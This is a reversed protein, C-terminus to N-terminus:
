YRTFTKGSITKKSVKSIDKEPHARNLVTLLNDVRQRMRSHLYSKTCKIHYHLYNRFGQIMDIANERKKENEVHTPFVTISVYGVLDESAKLQISRLELPPDRNFSIPPANNVRRHAEAMEQLFVRAIAQDTKDDFCISFLVIVRDDQPTIFLKENKRFSIIIKTLSTSNKTSLATFASSLPAGLLNRKINSLKLIFIESKLVDMKSLDISLTLDYKMEPTMTNMESYHDKLYTGAGYRELERYPPYALSFTMINNQIQIKYEVHDFDCIHMETNEAPRKSDKGIYKTLWEKVILNETKLFLMGKPSAM